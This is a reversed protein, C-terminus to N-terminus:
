KFNCFFSVEKGSFSKGTECFVEPKNKKGFVTIARNYPFKHYLKGSVERWEDDTIKFDTIKRWAKILM